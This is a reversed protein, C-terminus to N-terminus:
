SGGSFLLGRSAAPSSDAVASAMTIALEERKQLLYLFLKEKIGQERTIEQLGRQKGPMALLTSRSGQFHSAIRERMAATSIRINKLNEIISTRVKEIQNELVLIISNGPPITKLRETRELQLTNYQNILALLTPDEIGLSSPVLNFRNGQNGVYNNVMDIVRLKVDEETLKGQVEKMEAYQATGQPAPYIM